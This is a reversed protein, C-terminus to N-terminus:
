FWDSLTVPDCARRAARRNRPTLSPAPWATMPANLPVVPRHSIQHPPEYPTTDRHEQHCAQCHLRLHGLRRRPRSGRPCASLPLPM